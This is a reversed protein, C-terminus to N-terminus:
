RSSPESTPRAKRSAGESSPHASSAGPGQPHTEQPRGQFAQMQASVQSRLHLRQQALDTHLQRAPAKRAERLQQLHARTAELTQHANARLAELTIPPQSTM